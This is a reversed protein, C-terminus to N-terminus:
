AFAPWPRPGPTSSVDAIGSAQELVEILTEVDERTPRERGAFRAVVPPLRQLAIPDITRDAVAQNVAAFGDRIRRVEDDTTDAPLRAMVQREYLGLSWTTLKEINLFFAVLAIALLLLLGGCGILAWRGCGPSARKPGEPSFPTQPELPESM